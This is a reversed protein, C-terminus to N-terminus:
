YRRNFVNWYDVIQGARVILIDEFQFMADSQVPQYFVYDGIDLQVSKSGNLTSQNPVLNQNPPDSTLSQIQLGDPAVLQAAWGGGYIIFSYQNNPDWWELLGALFEIFPILDGKIKKLLPTAIFQAPQLDFLFHSPYARPRLIAGGIGIDTIFPYERFLSYTGSGGSNFTIGGSFLEPFRSKGHDIISKYVSLNDAFEISPLLTPQTFSHLPM